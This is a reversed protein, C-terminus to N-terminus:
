KNGKRLRAAASAGERNVPFRSAAM